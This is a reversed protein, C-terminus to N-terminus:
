LFPGLSVLVGRLRAVAAKEADSGAKLEGRVADFAVSALWGASASAVQAIRTAVAGPRKAFYSSLAEPDYVLPLTDDGEGRRMEVVQMTTGSAANDDDNINSGRLAAMMASAQEDAELQARVDAMQASLGSPLASSIKPKDDQLTQMIVAASQRRAHHPHRRSYQPTASLADALPAALLLTAASRALHVM